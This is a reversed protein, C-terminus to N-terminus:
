GSGRGAPDPPQGVQVGPASSFASPPPLLPPPLLLLLPVDRLEFESWSSMDRRAVPGDDRSPPQLLFPLDDAPAISRPADVTGGVRAAAIRRCSPPPCDAQLDPTCRM